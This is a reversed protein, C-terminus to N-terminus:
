NSEFFAHIYKEIEALVEQHIEARTKEGKELCAFEAKEEALIKLAGPKCRQLFSYHTAGSVEVYTWSDPFKNTFPRYHTEPPVNEDLSAGMILVPTHANQLSDFNIVEVFGPVLAIALGVRKDAHGQNAKEYFEQDLQDIAPLFYATSIDNHEICFQRYDEFHLLAGSLALATYGGLSSGIVAIKTPDIHASFESQLLQDILFSVDKPQNWMRIVSAPTADGTTSGEHNAAVVLAGREAIPAGLWSLNSWNGSTGHVLIILPLKKATSMEADRAARFGEFVRNGGVSRVSDSQAPYLFTTNLTRGRARDVFTRETMGIQAFTFSSSFLLAFAIPFRTIM